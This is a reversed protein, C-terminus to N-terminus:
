DHQIECLLHKTLKHGRTSAIISICGCRSIVLSRTQRLRRMFRPLKIVHESALLSVDENESAQTIAQCGGASLTFCGAEIECRDTTKALAHKQTMNILVITVIRDRAQYILRV